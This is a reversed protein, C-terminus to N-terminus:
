ATIADIQKWTNGHFVELPQFSVKYKMKRSQEIWYGMYLHELQITATHKIQQLICFTGLSRRPESTDFFSYVASLGSHTQDTVAVAILQNNKYAEIFFTNSWDSYLFNKYDEPKPNVMDGDSHRSNIYSRYLEFHQKSYCAPVIRTTLDENYQLCRQQNRKPVFFKVAIRCPLCEQCHHCHPRYTHGGSRRYGLKILQSYLEM